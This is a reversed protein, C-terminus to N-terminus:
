AEGRSGLVNYFVLFNLIAFFIECEVRYGARIEVSIPQFKLRFNEVEFFSARLVFSERREARM